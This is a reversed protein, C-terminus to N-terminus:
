YMKVGFFFNEAGACPCNILFLLVFFHFFSNKRLIQSSTRFFERIMLAGEYSLTLLVGFVSLVFAIILVIAMMRPRVATVAAALV